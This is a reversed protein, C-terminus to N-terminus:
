DSFGHNVPRCECPSNRRGRPCMIEDRDCIKLGIHNLGSPAHAAVADNPELM